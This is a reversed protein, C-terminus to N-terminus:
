FLLHEPPLCRLAHYFLLTFGHPDEICETRRQEGSQGRHEGLAADPFRIRRDGGGDPRDHHQHKRPQHDKEDARLALDRLEAALRQQKQDERAQSCARAPKAVEARQLDAIDVLDYRDVLGARHQRDQQRDDEQM